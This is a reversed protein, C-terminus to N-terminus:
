QQKYKCQRKHVASRRTQNCRPCIRLGSSAHDAGITVSSGFVLGRSKTGLTPISMLLVRLVLLFVPNLRNLWDACRNSFYDNKIEWYLHIVVQLSRAIGLKM